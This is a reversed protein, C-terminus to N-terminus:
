GWVKFVDTSITSKPPRGGSHKFRERAAEVREISQKRLGEPYDMGPETYERTVFKTDCGFTLCQRRRYKEAGYFRTDYVKSKDEGCKPCM